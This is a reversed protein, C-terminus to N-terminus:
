FRAQVYAFVSGTDLEIRGRFDRKALDLRIATLQYALGVGFHRTLWYGASVGTRYVRPEVHDLEIEFAQGFVSATLRPTIFWDASAGVVPVPATVGKSVDIRPSTATFRYHFDEVLVGLMGAIEVRDTRVFSYQYEGVLIRNRAELRLRTNVPVERDGLDISRDISREAERKIQFARLGLRHRSAFRWTVSVFGSRPSRRLGLRNELDFEVGRAEADFRLHVDRRQVLTGLEIKITERGPRLSPEQACLCGAAGLAVAAVTARAARALM